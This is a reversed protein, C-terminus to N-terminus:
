GKDTIGMTDVVTVTIVMAAMIVVTDVIIDPDEM